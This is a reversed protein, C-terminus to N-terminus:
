PIDTEKLVIEKFFTVGELFTMKFRIARNKPTICKQVDGM